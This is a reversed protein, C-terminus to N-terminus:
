LEALWNECKNMHEWVLVRIQEALWDPVGRPANIAKTLNPRAIPQGQANLVLRATANIGGLLEVAQQAQDQTM